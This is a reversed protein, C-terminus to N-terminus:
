TSLEDCVKEAGVGSVHLLKERSSDGRVITVASKGVGLRKALLKILAANARDNEPAATVYARLLDGDVVLENRSARPTAKIRLRVGDDVSVLWTPLAISM